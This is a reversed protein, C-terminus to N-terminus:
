AWLKFDPIHSVAKIIDTKSVIGVLIDNSNVVPIADHNFNIMVKAVRRIDSIPDTTICESLDIDSLKKKLIMSSNEMDSMIMKLIVRNSILGVIQFSATVIPIQNITNDKLIDYAEQITSEINITICDKTMIDQVNYVIDTTDMNAIKKYSNIAESDYQKKEKNTDNDIYSFTENDPKLRSSALEDIKHLNYLNDSTGRFQVSGKNYITFM